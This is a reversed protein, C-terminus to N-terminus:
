TSRLWDLTCPRCNRRSTALPLSLSVPGSWALTVSRRSSPVCYGSPPEKCNVSTVTSGPVPVTVTRANNGLGFNTSSGPINTRARMSSPTFSLTTSTGCTPTVRSAPPLAVVSTTPASLLTDSRAIWALRVEPVSQTTSPPSLSPSFTITAPMCFTCGPAVTRATSTALAAGAGTANGGEGTAAFQAHRLEEDVPRDERDDDREDDHQRAREGDRLQGDVLIGRNCRGRYLDARGVRAGRGVGDVVHDHLHDLLLHAADIVQDVHGGHAVVGALGGGGESERGPGIRVDRLHLHLVLQLEGYRQEGRLYLLRAHAHRFGGVGEQHEHAEDGGVM